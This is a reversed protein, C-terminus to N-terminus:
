PQSAGASVVVKGKMLAATLLGGHTKAAQKKEADPAAKQRDDGPRPVARPKKLRRDSAFVSMTEVMQAM